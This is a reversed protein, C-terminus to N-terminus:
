QKAAEPKRRELVVQIHTRKAKRRRKRGPRWTAQAKHASIHRIFLEAPSLGKAQANAEASKVVDLIEKCTKVPYRGSGIGPKHAVEKKYRHLAVPKKLKMVEELTKKAQLLQKGRIATCVEISHKLSIPLGTGIAKAHNEKALTEVQKNYNM